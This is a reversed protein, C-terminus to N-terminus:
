VGVSPALVGKMKMWNTINVGREKKVKSLKNAIRAKKRLRTSSENVGDDYNKLKANIDTLHSIIKMQKATSLKKSPAVAGPKTTAQHYKDKVETMLKEAQDRIFRRKKKPMRTDDIITQGVNQANIQQSIGKSLDTPIKRKKLIRCTSSADPVAVRTEGSAQKQNPIFNSEMDRVIPIRDKSVKRRAKPVETRGTLAVSSATKQDSVDRKPLSVGDNDDDDEEESDDLVYRRRKQPTPRENRQNSIGSDESPIPKETRRNSIGSDVTAKVGKSDDKRSAKGSTGKSEEEHFRKKKPISAEVNRNTVNSTTTKAVKGDDKKNAKNETGRGISSDSSRKKEPTKVALRNMNKPIAVVLRNMNGDDNIMKQREEDSHQKEIRLTNLQSKSNQNGATGNSETFSISKVTSAKLVDGSIDKTTTANDKQKQQDEISKHQEILSRAWSIYPVDRFSKLPIYRNPDDRADILNQMLERIDGVTPLNNALLIDKLHWKDPTGYDQLSGCLNRIWERNLPGQTWRVDVLDRFSKLPLKRHTDDRARILSELLNTLTGRISLSNARLIDGLHKTKPELSGFISGIWKRDKDPLQEICNLLTEVESRNTIMKSSLEKESSGAGAKVHDELTTIGSASVAANGKSKGISDKNDHASTCQSRVLSKSQLLAASEAPSSAKPDWRNKTKTSITGPKMDITSLSIGKGNDARPENSNGNMTPRDNNVALSADRNSELHRDPTNINQKTAADATTVVSKNQNTIPMDNIGAKNKSSNNTYVEEATEAFSVGPIVVTSKAKKTIFPTGDSSSGNLNQLIEKKKKSFNTSDEITATKGNTNTESKSFSAGPVVVSSKAKNNTPTGPREAYQVARKCSSIGVTESVNTTKTKKSSPLPLTDISSSHERRRKKKPTTEIEVIVSKKNPDIVMQKTTTTSKKRPITAVVEGALMLRKEQHYSSPPPKKQRSDNHSENSYKRSLKQKQQQQSLSLASSSGTTGETHKKKSSKTRSVLKPGDDRRGRVVAEEGEEEEKPELLPNNSAFDNHLWRERCHKGKRGPINRAIKKWKKFSGHVKVLQILQRDEEVTWPVIIAASTQAALKTPSFHKSQQEEIALSELDVASPTTTANKTGDLTMTTATPTSPTPPNLSSRHVDNNSQTNVSAVKVKKRPITLLLQQHQHQQQQQETNNQKTVKTLTTATTSKKSHSHVSIDGSTTSKRDTTKATATTSAFISQVSTNTNDNALKTTTITRGKTTTTTMTSTTSAEDKEVNGTQRQHQQQKTSVSVNSDRQHGIGDNNTVATTTKGTAIIRSINTSSVPEDATSVNELIM